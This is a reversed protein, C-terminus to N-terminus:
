QGLLTVARWHDGRQWSYLKPGELALDCFIHCKVFQSNQLSSATLTTLNQCDLAMPFLFTSACAGIQPVGAFIALLFEDSGTLEYSKSAKAKIRRILGSPAELPVWYLNICEAAAHQEEQKRLVSGGRDGEDGHYDATEIAIRKGDIEVLVDPRGLASFLRGVQAASRQEKGNIGIGDNYAYVKEIIM